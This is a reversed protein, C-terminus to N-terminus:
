GTQCTTWSSRTTPGAPRTTIAPMAVTPATPLTIRRPPRSLCPGGRAIIAAVVAVVVVAVVEQDNSLATVMTSVAVMMTGIVTAVPDFAPHSEAATPHMRRPTTGATEMLMAITEETPLLPIGAREFHMMAM